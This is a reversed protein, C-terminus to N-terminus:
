LATKESSISKTPNEVKACIRMREDAPRGIFSFAGSLM